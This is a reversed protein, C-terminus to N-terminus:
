SEGKAKAIAAQIQDAINRMESWYSYAKASQDPSVSERQEAESEIIPLAKVLVALLDPAAAILRANAEAEPFDWAQAITRGDAIIYGIGQSSLGSFIWRGPTHKSEGM